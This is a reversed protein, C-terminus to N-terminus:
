ISRLPTPKRRHANRSRWRKRRVSSPPSRTPAPRRGISNRGNSPSQALAASSDASGVPAIDRAPGDVQAMRQGSTSITEVAGQRIAAQENGAPAPTMLPVPLAAHSFASPTVDHPSVIVRMGMRTMGFLKNATGDPMRICGHSAPYGPLAGAHMAIGSWTIRQMYPMPAGSYINSAHFRDKQIVSFVGFPTRHGAQGTSVPAHVIAGTSDYVALRQSGVSIM